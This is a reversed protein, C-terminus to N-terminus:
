CARFIRCWPGSTTGACLAAPAKSRKRGTPPRRAGGRRRACWTGTSPRIGSHRVGWARRRTGCRPQSPAGGPARPPPPCPWSGACTSSLALSTGAAASSSPGAARAVAWHASPPSPRVRPRTPRQTRSSCRGGCGWRGRPATRGPRASSACGVAASVACGPPRRRGRETPTPTPPPSPPRRARSSSRRPPPRLWPRGGSRRGASTSGTGTQGFTRGSSRRVGRSRPM